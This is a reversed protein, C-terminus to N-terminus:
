TNDAKLFPHIQPLHFACSLERSAITDTSKEPRKGEKLGIYTDSVRDEAM